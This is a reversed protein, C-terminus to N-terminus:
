PVPPGTYSDQGMNSKELDGLREHHEGALLLAECSTCSWAQKSAPFDISCMCYGQSGLWLHLKCDFKYKTKAVVKNGLTVRALACTYISCCTDVGPIHASFVLAPWHCFQGSFWCCIGAGTAILSLGTALETSCLNGRHSKGTLNCRWSDDSVPSNVLSGNRTIKWPLSLCILGYSLVVPGPWTDKWYAEDQKM